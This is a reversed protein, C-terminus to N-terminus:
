TANRINPLLGDHDAVFTSDRPIPTIRDAKAVTTRYSETGFMGSQDRNRYHRFNRDHLRYSQGLLRPPQEAMDAPRSNLLLMRSYVIRRTFTLHKGTRFPVNLLPVRSREVAPASRSCTKRPIIITTSGEDPPRLCVM